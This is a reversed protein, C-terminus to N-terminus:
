FRYKVSLPFLIGKQLYAGPYEGTEDVGLAAKRYAIGGSVYWPYFVRVYKKGKPGVVVTRNAGFRQELGGGVQWYPLLSAQGAYIQISDFPGFGALSGDGRGGPGINAPEYRFGALIRTDDTLGLMAGTRLSLTDYVDKPKEKFDVLSFETTGKPARDYNIDALLRFRKYEFEVGAIIKSLPEGVSSQANGGADDGASLFSSVSTSRQTSSFVESAVGISIARPVLDFRVGATVGFTTEDLLLNAIAQQEGTPKVAANISLSRYSAKAGISLRDFMKFGGILGFGGRSQAAISIDVLNTQDLIVLPARQIEINTNGPPLLDTLGIGFNPTPKYIFKPVFGLLSGAGNQNKDVTESGIYRVRYSQVQYLVPDFEFTSREIHGANAPNAIAGSPANLAAQVDGILENALLNASWLM